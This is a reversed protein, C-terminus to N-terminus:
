QNFNLKVTESKRNYYCNTSPQCASFLLYIDRKENMEIYYPAEDGTVPTYGLATDEKSLPLNEFPLSFVIKWSNGDKQTGILYKSVGTVREGGFAPETKSAYELVILEHNSDSPFSFSSISLTENAAKAMAPDIGSKVKYVGGHYKKEPLQELFTMAGTKAVGAVNTGAFNIQNDINVGAASFKEPVIQHLRDTTGVLEIRPSTQGEANASKPFLAQANDLVLAFAVFATLAVHNLHRFTEASLGLSSREGEASKTGSYNQGTGSLVTM